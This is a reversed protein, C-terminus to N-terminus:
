FKQYSFDELNDYFINFSKSKIYYLFLNFELGYGCKKLNFIDREKFFDDTFRQNFLCMELELIHKDIFEVRKLECLKKYEKQKM